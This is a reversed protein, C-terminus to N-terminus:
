GERNQPYRVEYKRRLNEFLLNNADRRRVLQVDDTLQRTVEEIPRLLEPTRRELRVLHWGYASRVPGQWDPGAELAAIATAFERGFLDGIERQSRNAYSRQLMFPDGGPEPMALAASADAQADTRRESSFYRHEFSFQEPTTYNDPNAQYYSALEEASPPDTDALDETLFTLKQALRRRIIVDNENLGMARAERYYIEERIWQETLGDLEDASPTRGMQAQWQDSIRQLQANSVEIVSNADDNSELRSIGFIVAGAFLFVVLPERLVNM